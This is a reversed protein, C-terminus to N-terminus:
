VYEWHYGKATHHQPYKRLCVALNSSHSGVARAAASVSPFVQGTEVCRVPRIGLRPVKGLSYVRHRQNEEANVWELNEIRNDDKEGNKHNILARGVPHRGLFAEAVLRHVRYYKTKGRSTLAVSHYGDRDVSQCLLREYYIHTSNDPYISERTLSKIRGFSSVQYQGEYGVIDKWEEGALAEVGKHADIKEIRRRMRFAQQYCVSCLGKAYYKEKGGCKKCIRITSM